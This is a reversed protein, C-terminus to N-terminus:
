ILAVRGLSLVELNGLQIVGEIRNIRNGGLLLLKLNGLAGLNEMKEIQNLELGLM